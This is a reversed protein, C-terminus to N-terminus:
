RAADHGGGDGGGGADAGPFTALRDVAAEEKKPELRGYTALSLIAELLAAHDEETLASLPAVALQRGNEDVPRPDPKKRGQYFVPEVAAAMVLGDGSARRARYAKAKQEVSLADYRRRRVQVDPSELEPDIAPTAQTLLMVEDAELKRILVRLPAGARDRAVPLELVVEPLEVDDRTPEIVAAPPHAEQGEKM